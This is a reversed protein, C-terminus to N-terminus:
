GTVRAKAKDSPGNLATVSTLRGTGTDDTMNGEEERGNGIVGEKAGFRDSSFAWILNWDARSIPKRPSVPYTLM